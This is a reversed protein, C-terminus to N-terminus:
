INRNMAANILDSTSLANDGNAFNIKGHSEIIENLDIGPYAYGDDIYNAGLVSGGPWTNYFANILKNITQGQTVNVNPGTKVIGVAITRADHQSHFNPNTNIPRGRQIVGDKRIIYNMSIGDRDLENELKHIDESTYSRGVDCDYSFFVVQTIERSSLNFETMLEEESTVELFINTNTNKGGNWSNMNVRTDYIKSTDVISTTIDSSSLRIGAGATCGRVFDNIQKTLDQYTSDKAQPVKDPENAISPAVDIVELKKSVNLNPLVLKLSEVSSSAIVHNMIGDDIDSVIKELDPKNEIKQVEKYAIKCLARKDSKTSILIVHDTSNGTGIDQSETLSKVVKATENIKNSNSNLNSTSTNTRLRSNINNITTM